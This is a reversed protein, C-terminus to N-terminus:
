ESFDSKFKKSIERLNDCIEVRTPPSILIEKPSPPNLKQKERWLRTCNCQAQSRYSLTHKPVSTPQSCTMVHRLSKWCAQDAFFLSPSKKENLSTLTTCSSETQARETRDRFESARPVVAFTDHSHKIISPLPTQVIHRLGDHWQPFQTVHSIGGNVPKWKINRQTKGSEIVLEQSSSCKFAIASYQHLNLSLATLQSAM